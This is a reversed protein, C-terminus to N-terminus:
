RDQVETFIGSELKLNVPSLTKELINGTNPDSHRVKKLIRLALGELSSTSLVLALSTVQHPAVTGAGDKIPIEEPAGQPETGATLVAADPVNEITVSVLEDIGNGMQADIKIPIRAFDNDAIESDQRTEADEAGRELSMRYWHPVHGLLGGMLGCSVLLVWLRPVEFWEPPGEGGMWEPRSVASKIHELWPHVVTFAVLVLIGALLLSELWPFWPPPKGKTGCGETVWNDALFAISFGAVFCLIFWPKDWYFSRVAEVFDGCYLFRFTLSVVGALIVAFFGSALNALLPRTRRRRRNFSRWLTKPYIAAVVAFGYIVGVMTAIFTARGITSEGAPAPTIKLISYIYKAGVLCSMLILFIGLGVGVIQDASLGPKQISVVDVFGLQRLRELRDRDTDGLRLVGRAIFHTAARHLDDVMAMISSAYEMVASNDAGHERAMAFYAHAKPRLSYFDKQIKSYDEALKLTIKDYDQWEDIQVETWNQETGYKHDRKPVDQERWDKIIVTLATIRTWKYQESGNPEFVIDQDDFGALREKVAGRFVVPVSFSSRRLQSGLHRAASPINGIDWSSERLWQDFKSLRTNPLLTTLLLASYLPGSLKEAAEKIEVGFFIKALMPSNTLAGGVLLFLLWLALLYLLLSFYYRETTTSLRNSPPTNFRKVAYILVLVGGFIWQWYLESM